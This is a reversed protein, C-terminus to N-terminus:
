APEIKANMPAIEPKAMEFKDKIVIRKEDIKLIASAHIIRQDFIRKVYLRTISLSSNEIVFDSVKGIYDGNKTEVRQGIIKPRRKMKKNFRVMETPPVLSEENEIILGDKLLEILEKQPIFVTKKILGKTKAIIVEIKKEDEDVFFGSLEAVRRKSEIDYVPLGILKSYEILV